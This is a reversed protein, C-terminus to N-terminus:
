QRVTRGLAGALHGNSFPDDFPKGDMLILRQGWGSAQFTPVLTQTLLSILAISKPKYSVNVRRLIAPAAREIAKSLEGGNEMACEVAGILFYGQRQFEVLAAEEDMSSGPAVGACKALGDFYERSAPSREERDSTARYFYDELRAPPASDILLVSIHVPRYRTALELREIRRRIHADDVNAGCGDCIPVRPEEM